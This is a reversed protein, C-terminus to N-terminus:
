NIISLSSFTFFYTTICFIIAVSPELMRRRINIRFEGWWFATMEMRIWVDGLGVARRRTRSRAVVDRSCDNEELIASQDTTTVCRLSIAGSFPCWQPEIGGTFFHYNAVLEMAADSTLIMQNTRISDIPLFDSKWGM